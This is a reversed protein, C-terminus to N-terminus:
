VEHKIESPNFYFLKLKLLGQTFNANAKLKLTTTNAFASHVVSTHYKKDLNESNISLATFFQIDGAYIDITATGTYDSVEAQLSLVSAGQPIILIEKEDGKKFTSLDVVCEALYAINKVKQIMMVGKNKQALYVWLRMIAIQM